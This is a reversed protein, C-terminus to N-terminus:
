KIKQRSALLRTTQIILALILGVVFGSYHAINTMLDYPYLEFSFGTTEGNFCMALYIFAVVIGGLIINTKNRLEHRFSFLYDIIIVAYNFYNVGSFGIGSVSLNNTVCAIGSFYAGLIVYIILGLSGKKRELYLGAVGFCLMNLLVHQWNIHGFASFFADITPYFYFVDHWHYKGDCGISVPAKGPFLTFLLINLLIVIITGVFFYNRNWWKLNKSKDDIFKM